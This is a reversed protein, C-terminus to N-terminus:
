NKLCVTFTTGHGSKSDVAITGGLLDVTKKVLALGLGNGEQAHSTDGQYFKDFIHTQTDRDIGIGTDTVSVVALDDASKLSLTIKGGSGTFKVANSLLNNWVIELMNNDYCVNIEDLNAEFEINKQEWLDEFAVACRRLQESLDFPETKPMIEQNELKNLKLINTIMATLRQTAEIIIESYEKREEAQLSEKQLATAYSQIVSLPTKIEHSVNAIFDNKLTEITTLEEAMTNFDDFMVEIFDKKGDRRLPPIRVSFDGLAIQKAAQSITRMPRNWFIHRIVAIGTLFLAATVMIYAILMNIAFQINTEMLGRELFEQYIWMHFGNFAAMAFFLLLFDKVSVYGANIRLDKSKKM